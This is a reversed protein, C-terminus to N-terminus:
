LFRCMVVLFMITLHLKHSLTQQSSLETLYPVTVCLVFLMKSNVMKYM